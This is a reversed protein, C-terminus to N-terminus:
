KTTALTEEVEVVEAPGEVVEEISAMVEGRAEIVVERAELTTVAEEETAAEGRVMKVKEMTESVVKTAEERGERDV